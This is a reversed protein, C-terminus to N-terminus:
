AIEAIEPLSDGSARSLAYALVAGVLFAAFSVLARSGEGTAPAFRDLLCWSGWALAAPLGVALLAQAGQKRAPAVVVVEIGPSLDFGRRNVAYFEGRKGGCGANSCGACGEPDAPALTVVAGEVGLVLARERM